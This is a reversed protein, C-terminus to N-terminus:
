VSLLLPVQAECNMPVGVKPKLETKPVWRCCSSFPISLSESDYMDKGDPVGSIGFYVFSLLKVQFM